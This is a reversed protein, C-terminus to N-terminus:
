RDMLSIHIQMVIAAYELPLLHDELVRANQIMGALAGKVFGLYRFVPITSLLPCAPLTLYM